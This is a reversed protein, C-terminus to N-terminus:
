QVQEFRSSNRKAFNAVSAIGDRLNVRPHWGLVRNALDNSGESVKLVEDRVIAKRLPFQAEYLGPFSDWFGDEGAFNPQSAGPFHECFLKYIDSVSALQGSCVNLVSVNSTDHETVDSLIQLVDDVFIYDREQRGASYFTPAEGHLLAKCIYGMLPPNRRLFDQNPGYVNFFRLSLGPLGYNRGYSTVVNEAVAKTQSYILSPKVDASEVFPRRHENEYVASTSAFVFKKVGEIRAMELMNVTGNVNVSFAEAPNEQCAPLSSLGALHFVVDVPGVMKAIDSRRVDLEIVDLTGLDEFHLNRPNGYSMNDLLVVDWGNRILFASLHSGIFGAAGTVLARMNAVSRCLVQEFGHM